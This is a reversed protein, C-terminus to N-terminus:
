GLAIQNMREICDNMIVPTGNVKAVVVKQSAEVSKSIVGTKENGHEKSETKGSRDSSCSTVTLLLCGTFCCALIRRMM